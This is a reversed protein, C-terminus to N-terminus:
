ASDEPSVIRNATVVYNLRADYDDCPVVGGQLLTRDHSVGVKVTATPMVDLGRDYWGAGRGLRRGSTDFVVGPVLVFDVVPRSVLQASALTTGRWLPELEPDTWQRGLPLAPLLVRVGRVRLLHVFGSVDPETPSPSYAAVTPTQGLRGAAFLSDYLDMLNKTLKSTSAVLRRADARYLTRYAASVGSYTRRWRRKQESITGTANVNREM